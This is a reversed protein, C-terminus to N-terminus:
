GRIDFGSVDGAAPRWSAEVEEVAAAAPGRRCAALLTELSERRGEAVLEVSGDPLNRVWGAVGLRAAERRAFARYSVGQVRGHIVAELRVADRAPAASM